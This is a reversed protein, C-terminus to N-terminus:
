APRAAAPFPHRVARPRAAAGPAASHARAQAAPLRHPAAAPRPVAPGQATRGGQGCRAAPSRRKVRGRDRQRHQQQDRHRRREQQRPGPRGPAVQLPQARGAHAHALAVEVGARADGLAGAHRRQGTLEVLHAFANGAQDCALTLQGVVDRM